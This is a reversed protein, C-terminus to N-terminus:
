KGQFKRLLLVGVLAVPWLLMIACIAAFLGGALRRRISNPLCKLLLVPLWLLVCAYLTQFFGGSYFAPGSGQKVWGGSIPGGRLRVYVFM